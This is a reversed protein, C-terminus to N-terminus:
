TYSELPNKLNRVVVYNGRCYAFTEGKPDGAM